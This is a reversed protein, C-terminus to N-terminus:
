FTKTFRLPKGDTDVFYATNDKRLFLLGRSDLINNKIIQDEVISSKTGEPKGNREDIDENEKEDGEDEQTTKRTQRTTKIKWTKSKTKRRSIENEEQLCIEKVFTEIKQQKVEFKYEIAKLSIM